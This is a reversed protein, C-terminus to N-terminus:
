ETHINPEALADDHKLEINKTQRQLNWSEWITKIAFFHSCRWCLRAHEPTHVNTTTPTTRV